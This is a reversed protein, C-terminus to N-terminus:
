FGCGEFTFDPCQEILSLYPCYGGFSLPSPPPCLWSFLSQGGSNIPQRKEKCFKEMPPSRKQSLMIPLCLNKQIFPYIRECNRKTLFCCGMKRLCFM